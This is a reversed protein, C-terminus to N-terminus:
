LVKWDSHPSANLLLSNVKDVVEAMILPRSFRADARLLNEEDTFMESKKNSIAIVPLRKRKADYLKKYATLGELMPLMMDCVLLDPNEAYVIKLADSGNPATIVDYDKEVLIEKLNDQESTNSFALLVKHQRMTNSFEDTPKDLGPTYEPDYEPSLEPTYEPTLEPTLERALAPTYEIAVAPEHISEIIVDDLEKPQDPQSIIIKTGWLEPDVKALAEEASVTGSKVKEWAAEALRSRGSQKIARLFESEGAHELILREIEPGNVTIEQIGIHGKIGTKYCQKCGTGHYFTKPLTFGNSSFFMANEPSYEEKCAPCTKKLLQQSVVALINSSALWPELGFNVLRSLADAAHTSQISTIVLRGSNAYGLALAATERDRLEDVMLIDPEQRIALRIDDAVSGSSRGAQVVGDVRKDAREEVAVIDKSFSSLERLLAYMLSKKGSYRPGAFLILGQRASAAKMLASSIEPEIGLDKMSSAPRDQYRLRVKVREGNLSPLTSVELEVAKGSILVKSKGSQPLNKNSVDLNAIKKLYSLLTDRISGPMSIINFLDGEMRYSLRIEAVGAEIYVDSANKNFSDMFIFALLKMAPSSINVDFTRQVDFGEEQPMAIFHVEDKIQFAKLMQQILDNIRYTREICELVDTETSVVPQIKLGSKRAAEDLAKFNLPDSVAVVLMGDGTQLPIILNQTVFNKDLLKLAESSPQIDRLAEFKLRLQKCLAAAIEEETTIGMDILVKGLKKRKLDQRGLAKELQDKTLIGENVLIEGLKPKTTGVM